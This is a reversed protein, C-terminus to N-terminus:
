RRAEGRVWGDSGLEAVLDFIDRRACFAVDDRLEARSLLRRGNRSRAFAAALDDKELSYLRRCIEASDAVAGGSCNCWVLDCLAGAGLVDEYAAQEYTGGCVVLLNPRLHEDRQHSGLRPAEPQMERFYNPAKPPLTALGRASQMQM